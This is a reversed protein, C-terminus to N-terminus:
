FWAQLTEVRGADDRRAILHLRATRGDRYATAEIRFFSSRIDLYPAIREFAESGFVDTLLALSAVPREGRLAVIREVLGENGIGFLGELVFPAATNLNVPVVRNRPAPIISVGDILDADRFLGGGRYPKRAFTESQWGEVQFLEDWGLLLRNAPVSAPTLAAYHPTEWAGADDTDIWDRLAAIRPGPTFEGARLMIGALAEGPPLTNGTVPVALNNLDFSAQLDTFRLMRSVGAPDVMEEDAPM